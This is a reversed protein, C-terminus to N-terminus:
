RGGLWVDGLRFAYSETTNDISNKHNITRHPKKLEKQFWAKHSHYDEASAYDEIHGIETNDLFVEDAHQVWTVEDNSKGDHIIHQFPFEDQNSVPEFMTKYGNIYSGTACVVQSESFRPHYLWIKLYYPKNLTKLQSEWHHHIDMLANLLIRRTEGKPEPCVSSTINLHGYPRLRIKVYIRHFGDPSDFDLKLNAMKWREIARWIRKHGRVKKTRM